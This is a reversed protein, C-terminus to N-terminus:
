DTVIISGKMSPHPVCHYSYTGPETFIFSFTTGPAILGSDLLSGSDSTVTHSVSDKNTWIVKMGVKINRTIPQFSFNEINALVVKSMDDVGSFDIPLGVEEEYATVGDNDSYWKTTILYKFVFFYAAIVVIVLVLLSIVIKKM